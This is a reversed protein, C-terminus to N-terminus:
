RGHLDGHSALFVAHAACPRLMSVEGKRNQEECCGCEFAVTYMDRDPERQPGPRYGFKFTHFLSFL